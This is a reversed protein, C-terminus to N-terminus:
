VTALGHTENPINASVLTNRPVALTQNQVGGTADALPVNKPQNYVVVAPVSSAPSNNSSQTMALEANTTIMGTQSIENEANQRLYNITMFFAIAILISAVPDHSYVWLLLAIVAIRFYLNSVIPAYKTSIQPAIKAAYVIIVIKLVISFWTMSLLSDAKESVVGDFSQIGYQVNSNLGSTVNDTLGTLANATADFGNKVLNIGSEVLNKSTSVISKTLNATGDVLSTLGDASKDIINVATDAAGDIVSEAVTDVSHFVNNIGQSINEVITSDAM